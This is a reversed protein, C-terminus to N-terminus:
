QKKWKKNQASIRRRGDSDTITVHTSGTSQKNGLTTRVKRFMSRTAETSLLNKIITGKCDSNLFVLHHGCDQGTWAAFIGMSCIGSLWLQMALLISKQMHGNSCIADMVVPSSTLQHQKLRWKNDHRRNRQLYIRSFNPTPSLVHKEKRHAMQLSHFAKQHLSQHMCRSSQLM